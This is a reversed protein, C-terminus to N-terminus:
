LKLLFKVSSAPINHAEFLLSVREKSVCAAASVLNAYDIEQLIGVIEEVNEENLM